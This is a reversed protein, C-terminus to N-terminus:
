MGAPQSQFSAAVIEVFISGHGDSFHLSAVRAGTIEGGGALFTNQDVGPIVNGGIVGHLQAFVSIVLHGANAKIGQLGHQCVAFACAILGHDNRGVSAIRILGTQKLPPDLPKDILTIGALFCGNFSSLAHGYWAGALMLKTKSQINHIYIILVQILFLFIGSRM